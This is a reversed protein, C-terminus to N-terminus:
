CSSSHLGGPAAEAEITPSAKLLARAHGVKAAYEDVRAQLSAVQVEASALIRMVEAQALNSPAGATGQSAASLAARRLEAVEKRKLDELSRLLMQGNVVDPHAETYRLLLMDLTKRQADIRADIEPTSVSLASEQLLSQTVSTGPTGRLTELQRRAENRANKAERLELRAREYLELAQGLRTNADRGDPNVAEINRLRFTKLREEARVLKEEYTRIQEEIFRKAQQSDNRSRGLGSEVFISVLSQVM